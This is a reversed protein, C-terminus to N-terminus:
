STSGSLIHIIMITLSFVKYHARWLATWSIAKLRRFRVLCPSISTAWFITSANPFLNTDFCNSSTGNDVLATVYKGGDNPKQEVRPSTSVM